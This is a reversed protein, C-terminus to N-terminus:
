EAVDFGLAKIEDALAPALEKIRDWAEDLTKAYGSREIQRHAMADRGVAVIQWLWRNRGDEFHHCQTHWDIMFTMAKM